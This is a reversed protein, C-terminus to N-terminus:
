EFRTKRIRTQIQQANATLRCYYQHKNISYREVPYVAVFDVRLVRIKTKCILPIRHCINRLTWTNAWKRDIFQFFFQSFSIFLSQINTSQTFLSYEELSPPSPYHFHLDYTFYEINTRTGVWNTESIWWWNFHKNRKNHWKMWKLISNM